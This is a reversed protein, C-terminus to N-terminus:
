FEEAVFRAKIFLAVVWWWGYSAVVVCLWGYYAGIVWESM